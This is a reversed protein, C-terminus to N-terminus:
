ACNHWVRGFVFDTQEPLSKRACITLGLPPEKLLQNNEVSGSLAMCDREIDSPGGVYETAGHRIAANMIGLEDLNVEVGFM